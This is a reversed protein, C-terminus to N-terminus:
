HFCFSTSIYCTTKYICFLRICKNTLLPHACKTLSRFLLLAFLFIPHVSYLFPFILAHPFPSFLYQPHFNSLLSPYLFPIIYSISPHIFSSHTFSHFSFHHPLTAQLYQTPYLTSKNVDVREEAKPSLSRRHVWVKFSSYCNQRILM